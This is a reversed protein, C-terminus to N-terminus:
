LVIYRRILTNMNKDHIFRYMTIIQFKKLILSTTDGVFM